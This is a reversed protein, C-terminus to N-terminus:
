ICQGSRIDNGCYCGMQINSLHNKESFLATMAPLQLMICGIATVAIMVLTLICGVKYIGKWEHKILKGLM